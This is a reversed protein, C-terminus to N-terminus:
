MPMTFSVGVVSAGTAVYALLLAWGSCAVLISAAVCDCLLVPSGAFASEHAFRAVCLAILLTCSMALLYALWTGNGASAFVLPGDDCAFVDPWTSISQALTEASWHIASCGYSTSEPM